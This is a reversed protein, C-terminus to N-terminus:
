FGGEGRIACAGDRIVPTERRAQSSAFPWPKTEDTEVQTPIRAARRNRFSRLELALSSLFKVGQRQNNRNAVDARQLALQRTQMNPSMGSFFHVQMYIHSSRKQVRGGRHVRM